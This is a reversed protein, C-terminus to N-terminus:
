RLKSKVWIVLGILYVLIIFGGLWFLIELFSVILGLVVLVVAFFFIWGLPNVRDFNRKVNLMKIIPIKELDKGIVRM